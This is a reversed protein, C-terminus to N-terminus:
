FNQLINPIDEAPPPSSFKLKEYQQWLKLNFQSYCLLPLRLYTFTYMKQIRKELKMLTLGSPLSILQCCGVVEGRCVHCM